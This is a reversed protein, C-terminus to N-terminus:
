ETFTRRLRENRAKGDVKVGKGMLSNGLKNYCWLKLECLIQSIEKVKM